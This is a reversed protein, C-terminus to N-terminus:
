EDDDDGADASEGEVNDVGAFVAADVDVGAGDGAGAGAAGAGAAEVDVADDVVVELEQGM